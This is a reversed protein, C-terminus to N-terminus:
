GELGVAHAESKSVRKITWGYYRVLEAETLGRTGEIENIRAIAERKGALHDFRGNINSIRYVPM